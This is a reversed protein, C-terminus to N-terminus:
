RIEDEEAEYVHGALGKGAGEGRTADGGSTGYIKGSLGSLSIHNSRPFAPFTPTHGARALIGTLRKSM